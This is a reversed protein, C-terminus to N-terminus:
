KLILMRIRLDEPLQALWNELSTLRAWTLSSKILELLTALFPLFAQREDFPMM